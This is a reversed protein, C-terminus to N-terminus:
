DNGTASREVAQVPPIAHLYDLCRDHCPHQERQRGRRCEPRARDSVEGIPLKLRRLGSGGAATGVAIALRRDLDRMLVLDEEAGLAPETAAAVAPILVQTRAQAVAAGREVGALRIRDRAEAGGAAVDVEGEAAARSRGAVVREVDRAQVQ